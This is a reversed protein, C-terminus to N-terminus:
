GPDDVLRSGRLDQVTCDGAAHHGSPCVSSGIREHGLFGLTEKGVKGNKAGYKSWSTM